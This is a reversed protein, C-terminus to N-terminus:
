VEDLRAPRRWAPKEPGDPYDQVRDDCDREAGNKVPSEGALDFPEDCKRKGEIKYKVERKGRKLKAELVVKQCREIDEEDDARKDPCEVCRPVSRRVEVPDDVGVYRIEQPAQKRGGKLQCDCVQVPLWFMSWCGQAGEAGAEDDGFAGMRM